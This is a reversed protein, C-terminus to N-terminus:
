EPAVQVTQNSYHQLLYNYRLNHSPIRYDQLLVSFSLRACSWTIHKEIGAAKIWGELAKNSSDACPIVFVRDTQKTRLTAKEKQRDLIAKSITHLTLVVPQGTKIQIIRTTLINGNIDAWDLIKV